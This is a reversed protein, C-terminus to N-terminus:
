EFSIVDTLAVAGGQTRLTVGSGGREVGTVAISSTTPITINLGSANRGTVAIRYAADTMPTGLDDIAPISIARTGAGPALERAAVVRGLSDAIAVQLNTTNAPIDAQIDISGNRVVGLDSRVRVTSGKLAAAQLLNTSEQVSVSKETTRAVNMLQEVQSFQVLQTTFEQTSMPSMPNQNTMQTTLMKLFSDFNTGVLKRGADTVSAQAASSGTLLSGGRLADVM